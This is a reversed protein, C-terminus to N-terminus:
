NVEGIDMDLPKKFGSLTIALIEPITLTKFRGNIIKSPEEAKLTINDVALEYLKGGYKVTLRKYFDFDDLDIYM